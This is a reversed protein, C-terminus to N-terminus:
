FTVDKMTKTHYTNNRLNVGLRNVNPQRQMQIITFLINFRMSLLEMLFLNLRQDLHTFKYKETDEKLILEDPWTFFEMSM